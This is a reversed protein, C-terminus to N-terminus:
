HRLLEGKQYIQENIKCNNKNIYQSQSRAHYFYTYYKSKNIQRQLFNLKNVSNKIIKTTKILRGNEFFQVDCNLKYDKVKLIEFTRIFLNKIPKQGSINLYRFNRSLLSYVYSKKFLYGTLDVDYIRGNINISFIDNNNEVIITFDNTLDKHKILNKELENKPYKNTHKSLSIDSIIYSICLGFLSIFLLIYMNEYLILVSFGLIMGIGCLIEIILSIIFIRRM